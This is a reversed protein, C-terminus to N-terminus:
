LKELDSQFILLKKLKSPQKHILSRVKMQPEDKRLFIKQFVIENLDDNLKLLSLVEITARLRLRIKDLHIIENLIKNLTKFLRKIM